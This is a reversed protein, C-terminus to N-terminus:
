GIAEEVATTEADREEAEDIGSQGLILSEALSHLFAIALIAAGISVATQPIWLLVADAGESREEFRWSIWTLRALYFAFWVAIGSAAALCWLVAIRRAPGSLHAILMGVRIHEGRRLTHALALFSAAAMCYGSAEGLGPVYISALRALIGALVLCGLAVLFGAALYAAAVYLKDLARGLRTLFAM